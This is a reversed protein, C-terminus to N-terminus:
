RHSFNKSSDEGNNVNQEVVVPNSAEVLSPIGEAELVQISSQNEVEVKLM